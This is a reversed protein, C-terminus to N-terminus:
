VVVRASTKTRRNHCCAKSSLGIVEFPTQSFEQVRSTATQPSHM